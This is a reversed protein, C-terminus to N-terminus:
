SSAGRGVGLHDLLAGRLEVFTPHDQARPRPLDVMVEYAIRGNELVLARDALLLAETVDHTVLLVAFGHEAWLRAVLEQMSLRTLADLSVFPEDLLLLDPQRVLARAVAARQAEGGSLTVPWATARAALKVDALAADARQRRGARPLGVTVNRWM